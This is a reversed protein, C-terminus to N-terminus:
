ATNRRRLSKLGPIRLVKEVAADAIVYRRSSYHTALQETKEKLRSVQTILDANRKELESKREQLHSAQVKLRSNTKRLHQLNGTMNNIISILEEERSLLRLPDLRQSFLARVQDLTKRVEAARSNPYVIGLNSTALGPGLDGILDFWYKESAQQIFDVVGAQVYPGWAHRCDDMLAVANPDQDFIAALDAQVGERTHLGDVLAILDANESSDVTPVDIKKSQDVYHGEKAGIKTSGVVGECFQVKQREVGFKAFTARAVDFVRLDKFSEPDFRGVWVDSNAVLEDSIMPNPDVSIVRSVKPHSAFCFASAGVFAGIELVVAKRPHYELLYGVIMADVPHISRNDLMRRKLEPFLQIVTDKYEDLVALYNSADNPEWHNNSHLDIFREHHSAVM